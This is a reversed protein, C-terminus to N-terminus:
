GSIKIDFSFDGSFVPDTVTFVLSYVQTEHANLTTPGTWTFTGIPTLPSTWQAIINITGTSQEGNNTLTIYKTRPAADGQNFYGFDVQTANAKIDAPAYVHGGAPISLLTQAAYVVFIAGCLLAIITIVAIKSIM